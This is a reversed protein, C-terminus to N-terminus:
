QFEVGVRLVIRRTSDSGPENMRQAFPVDKTIWMRGSDYTMGTGGGIYDSIEEAKQSVEAWSASYYWLSALLPLKEDLDGISAEYTIYPMVAEDPVSNEDYAPLDFKNWFADIAQWRDM